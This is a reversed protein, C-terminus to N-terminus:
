SFKTSSIRTQCTSLRALVYVVVLVLFTNRWYTDYGYVWGAWIEGDPGAGLGGDTVGFFEIFLFSVRSNSISGFRAPHRFQALLPEVCGWRADAGQIECVVVM